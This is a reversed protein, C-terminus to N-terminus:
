VGLPRNLRAFKGFYKKAAKNYAKAAEIKNIHDGLHTLRQNVRIMARWTGTDKRYYVGKYGSTNNKQPGRNIANQQSTAPRLNFRRNDLGDENKHDVQKLNKHGMRELVVGHMNIRRHLLGRRVAYLTKTHTTKIAHWKWQNLYTYDIDSVLAFKGQTLKIRKM